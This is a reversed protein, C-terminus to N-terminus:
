GFRLRAQAEDIRAQGWRKAASPAAGPMVDTGFGPELAVVGGGEGRVRVVGSITFVGTTGNAKDDILWETSRVSAVAARTVIDIECPGARPPMLFRVIGGFLAYIAAFRPMETRLVHRSLTIETAPGVVLTMDNDDFRILVRSDAGTRIRDGTHVASGPRLSEFTGNRLAATEGEQREVTGIRPQAATSGTAALCLGGALALTARRDSAM